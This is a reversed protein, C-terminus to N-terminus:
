GEYIRLLAEETPRESPVLGTLLEPYPLTEDHNNIFQIMYSTLNQINILREYVSNLMALERVTFAWQRKPYNHYGSIREIMKHRTEDSFEAEFQKLRKIERVMASLAKGFRTRVFADKERSYSLFVGSSIISELITTDLDQIGVWFFVLFDSMDNVEKTTLYIEDATDLPYHSERYAKLKNRIGTFGLYYAKVREGEAVTINQMNYILTDKVSQEAIKISIDTKIGLEAKLVTVVDEFRSFTHVWNMVPKEGERAERNRTVENIFAIIHEADKLISSDYNEVSSHDIERDNETIKLDHLVKHLAKRDEKVDWVNQRILVIIKKIKGEKALQYATRYEKRTISIDESPYMGGRRSGILLVFYDCQGVANLCADYSNQTTDKVFDNYESLQAAFGMEDLWYKLASRLDTFDYITSSIFITPKNM